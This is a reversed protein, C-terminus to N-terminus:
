PAGGRSPLTQPLSLVAAAQDAAYELQIRLGELRAVERGLRARERDVAYQLADRAPGFWGATAEDRPLSRVVAELRQGLDGVLRAQRRLEGVPDGGSAPPLCASTPDHM